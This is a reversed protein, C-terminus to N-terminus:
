TATHVEMQTDFWKSGPLQVTAMLHLIFRKDTANLGNAVERDHGPKSIGRDIIINNSQSSISLLYLAKDCIYNDACGDINEM